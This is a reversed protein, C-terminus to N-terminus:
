LNVTIVDSGKRDADCEFSTIVDGSVDGSVDETRGIENLGTQVTCSQMSSTGHRDSGLFV